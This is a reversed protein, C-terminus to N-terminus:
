ESSAIAQRLTECLQNMEGEKEWSSQPSGSQKTNMPITFVELSSYM